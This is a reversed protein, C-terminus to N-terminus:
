GDSRAEVRVEAWARAEKVSLEPKLIYCTVHAIM